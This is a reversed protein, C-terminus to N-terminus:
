HLRARLLNWLDRMATTLHSIETALPDKTKGSPSLLAAKIEDAEQSTIRHIDGTSLFVNHYDPGAPSIQDIAELRIVVPPLAVQAGHPGSFPHIEKHM